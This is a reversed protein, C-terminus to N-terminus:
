RPERKRQQFSCFIFHGLQNHSVDAREKFCRNTCNEFFPSNLGSCSRCKGEKKWKYSEEATEPVCMVKGGFRCFLTPSYNFLRPLCPQSKQASEEAENDKSTAAQSSSEDCSSESCYDNLGGSWESRRYDEYDSYYVPNSNADISSSSISSDSDSHEDEM